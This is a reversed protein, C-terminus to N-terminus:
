WAYPVARVRRPMHRARVARRTCPSSIPPGASRASLTQGSSRPRRSAAFSRCRCWPSSAKINEEAALKVSKTIDANKSLEDALHQASKELKAGSAITTGAVVTLAKPYLVVSLVADTKKAEATKEIVDVVDGLFQTALDIQDKSLHRKELEKPLSKRAEALGAKMQSVQVDSITGIMNATVVAGPLLLGAFRTKGPKM